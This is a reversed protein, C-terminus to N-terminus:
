PRAAPPPEAQPPSVSLAAPAAGASDPGAPTAGSAALAEEARLRASREEQWRVYQIYGFGLMLAFTFWQIAYSMHSGEDLAIPEERSPLADYLRDAEPLQRVFVPLLPYPMQAGIAPVDIRYWDRQFATPLPAGEITESEQILGIVPAGAPEELAPWNAEDAQDQPVWGRMVLVASGDELLLPTVLRVGAEGNPGPQNTWVIQHAYDLTGHIDVRRWELETLDAPLGGAALDYPPQNYREAVLNNFARRQELRDLQWFGLKALGAMGLLVLLSVWWWQRNVLKPLTQGTGSFFGRLSEGLGPEGEGPQPGDFDTPLPDHPSVPANQTM